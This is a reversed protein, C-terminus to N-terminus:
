NNNINRAYIFQVQNNESEPRCVQQQSVPVKFVKKPWKDGIMINPGQKSHQTKFQNSGEVFM